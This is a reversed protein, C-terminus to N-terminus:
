NVNIVKLFTDAYKNNAAVGVSVIDDSHVTDFDFTYFWSKGDLGFDFNDHIYRGSRTKIALYPQPGFVDGEITKVELYYTDNKKYLNVDLELKEYKNKNAVSNFADKTNSYKFQVDPFKKLSEKILSQVYEVEEGIDRFDHNTIGLLTPKDNNAREFARDVEYQNINAIRTNINLFRGILRNCKGVKQYDYFDPHYISWDSPARRWDGSRGNKFDNQKDIDEWNEIAMNSCDFPIWQELFWHSDPREVQFGARFSSPFFNRDIIRRSLVQHLHTSNEYSSACRHAEKYTSMPHFHWQIDDDFSKYKDIFELYRDHINHYGIDRRRPNIEFDVHDLCYWNYIWGNGFSDKLKTRFDNSMIKKHMFDIKDWSDNYKLVSSDVTQSVIDELGNLYIEKKRLKELNSYSAKMEIDFIDNLREFTADLSEYLPGETDIAHVIYVIKKM